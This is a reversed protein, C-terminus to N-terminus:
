APAASLWLATAHFAAIALNSIVVPNRGGVMPLTAVKYLIQVGLLAQAWATAQPVGAWLAGLLGLSSLAIAGYICTLIRRAPSDPGLADRVSHADKHIWRLVPLLVCINLILAATLMIPERTAPPSALSMGRAQAIDLCLNSM